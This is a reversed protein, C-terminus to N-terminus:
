TIARPRTVLSNVHSGHTIPHAVMFQFEEQHAGPIAMPGEWLAPDILVWGIGIGSCPLGIFFSPYLAPDLTRRENGVQM